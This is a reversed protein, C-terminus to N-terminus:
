TVDWTQEAPRPEEIRKVETEHTQRLIQGAAQAHQDLAATASGMERLHEAVAPDLPMESGARDALTYWMQSIAGTVQPLSDFFGIIDEASEPQWGGMQQAAEVVPEVANAGAMRGRRQKSTEGPRPATGAPRGQPFPNLPAGPRSRPPPVVFPPFKWEKGDPTQPRPPPRFPFPKGGPAGAPKSGPTGAPTATPPSLVWGTVPTPKGQPVPGGKTHARRRRYAAWAKRHQAKVWRWTRQRRSGLPAVVFKPHKRALWRWVSGRSRRGVQPVGTAKRHKPRSQWKRWRNRIKQRQRAQRGQPTGWTSWRKGVWASVKRRM